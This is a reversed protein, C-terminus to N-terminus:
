ELIKDEYNKVLSQFMHECISEERDKQLAIIINIYRLIVVRIVISTPVTFSM